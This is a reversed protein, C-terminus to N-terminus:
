CRIVYRPSRIVKQLSFVFWKSPNRSYGSSFPFVIVPHGASLIRESAESLADALSHQNLRPRLLRSSDTIWNATGASM